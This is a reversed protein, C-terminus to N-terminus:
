NHTDPILRHVAMVRGDKAACIACLDGNALKILAHERLQSKNGEGDVYTATTVSDRGATQRIHIKGGNEVELAYLAADITRATAPSSPRPQRAGTLPKEPAPRSTRKSETATDSSQAINPYPIPIPGGPTPTKCVDPFAITIGESNKHVVSLNDVGVTIEAWSAVSAALGVIMAIFRLYLAKTGM